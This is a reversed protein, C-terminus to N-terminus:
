TTILNKSSPAQFGPMDLISDVIQILPKKRPKSKWTASEDYKEDWISAPQGALNGPLTNKMSLHCGRLVKKQSLGRIVNEQVMAQHMCKRRSNVLLTDLQIIM